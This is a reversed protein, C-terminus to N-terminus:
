REAGPDRAYEADVEAAMSRLTHMRSQSFSIFIDADPARLRKSGEASFYDLLEALPYRIQQFEYAFSDWGGAPDRETVLRELEDVAEQVLRVHAAGFGLNNNRVADYMKEFYYDLVGPMTEQLSRDRFAMRHERERRQLEAVVTGLLSRIAERQRLIMNPIDIGQVLPPTGDAFQTRLTFGTRTMTGREIFHFSRQKKFDHETPHGVSTNRVTRVDRLVPDKSFQVNLARALDAAADQQVFLVQLIGYILLYKAGPDPPEPSDEYAAVALDTDGLVDLASCVQSFAAPRDRLLVALHKPDNILDRIAATADGVM